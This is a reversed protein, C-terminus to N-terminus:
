ALGVDRVTLTVRAVAVVIVDDVQEFHSLLEVPGIETICLGNRLRNAGSPDELLWRRLCWLLARLYYSGDRKADQPSVKSVGVRMAVTVSGDGVDHATSNSIFSSNEVAMALCPTTKPLRILAADANNHEAAFLAIDAPAVDGSEYPLDALHVNIGQSVHQTWDSTLRLAENLM